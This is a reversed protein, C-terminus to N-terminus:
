GARPWLGFSSAKSVGASEPRGGRAPPFAPRRVTLRHGGGLEKTLKFAQGSLAFVFISHNSSVGALVDGTTNWALPSADQVGSCPYPVDVRTHKYRTRCRRRIAAFSSTTPAGYHFGPSSILSTNKFTRVAFQTRSIPCKAVCSSNHIVLRSGTSVAALGDEGSLAV